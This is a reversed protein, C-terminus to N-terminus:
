SEVIEEELKDELWAVQVALRRLKKKLMEGLKRMAEEETDHVQGLNAWVMRNPSDYFEPPPEFEVKKIRYRLSDQGKVIVWGTRM